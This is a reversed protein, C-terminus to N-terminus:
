PAAQILHKVTGLTLWLSMMVHGCKRCWKGEKHLSDGTVLPNRECLVWLTFSSTKKVILRFCATPCVTFNKTIQSSLLIMHLRQFPLISIWQIGWLLALLLFTNGDWSIMMQYEQALHHKLSKCFGYKLMIDNVYNNTHTHTHAMFISNSTMNQM